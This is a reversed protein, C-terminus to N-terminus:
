HFDAPFFGNEDAVPAGVVPLPLYERKNSYQVGTWSLRYRDNGMPFMGAFRCTLTFWATGTADRNYALVGGRLYEQITSHYRLNLKGPNEPYKNHEAFYREVGQLVITAMYVRHKNKKDIKMSMTNFVMILGAILIFLAIISIRSHNRSM